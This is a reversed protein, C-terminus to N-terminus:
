VGERKEGLSKKLVEIFDKFTNFDNINRAFNMSFCTLVVNDKTYGRSNDIRDLSPKQPHKLDNVLLLPVNSWFCRGNQVQFLHEIFQEDIEIEKGLLKSNKKATGLLGKKWTVSYDKKIRKERIKRCPNCQSRFGDVSSKLLSFESKSKETNCYKCYKVSSLLLEKRKKDIDQRRIRNSKELSKKSYDKAKEPNKEKNKKIVKNHCPKCYSNFYGKYKYFHASTNSYTTSCLSCTKEVPAFTNNM